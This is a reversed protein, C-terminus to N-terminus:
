KVGWLKVTGDISISALYRGDPSFTVGTAWLNHASLTQMLSGNDTRRIQITGDPLGIAFISGDLSWAIANKYVSFKETQFIEVRIVADWNDSQWIRIIQKREKPTLFSGESSLSALTKGDPSFSVAEIIIGHDSGTWDLLKVLAENNLNLVKINDKNYSGTKDTYAVALLDEHHAISFDVISYERWGGILFTKNVSWSGTDWLQIREDTRINIDGDNNISSAFIKGDPSFDVSTSGFGFGELIRILRGDYSWINVSENDFGIALNQGDSSFALSNVIYGRGFNGSVIGDKTQVLYTFGEETGVVIKDGMPSWDLVNLTGGIQFISQILKSTTLDWVELGRELSSFALTKSDPSWTVSYGGYRSYETNFKHTLEWTDTKWVFVGSTTGAVLWKQDPSVSLANVSPHYYDALSITRDLFMKGNELVKWIRIANADTGTALLNGKPFFSLSPSFGEASYPGQKDTMTGDLSWIKTSNGGAALFKGDPSFHVEEVFDPSKFKRISIGSSIDWVEAYSGTDLIIATALLKGDPSFAINNTSVGITTSASLDHINYLVVKNTMAAAVKKSDSTLAISLVPEATKISKVVSYDKTDYFFIGTTHGAVLFKNDPTYSVQSVNGNGWQAFLSLRNVNDLTIKGAPEPVKTGYYSPTVPIYTGTPTLSPSPTVSPTFTPPPTKIENTAIASSTCSSLLLLSLCLVGNIFHLNSSKMM